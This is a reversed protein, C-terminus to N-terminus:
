LHVPLSGSEPLLPQQVKRHNKAWELWLPESQGSLNRIQVIFVRTDLGARALFYGNSGVPPSPYMQCQWMTSWSFLSIIRGYLTRGHNAFLM